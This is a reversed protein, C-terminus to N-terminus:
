VAVMQRRKWLYYVTPLVFMSLLAATIMGGVVKIDAIQAGTSTVLTLEM